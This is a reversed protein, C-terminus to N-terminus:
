LGGSRHRSGDGKLTSNSLRRSFRISTYDLWAGDDYPLLEWM